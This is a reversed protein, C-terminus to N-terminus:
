LECDQKLEITVIVELNGGVMQGMWQSQNVVVAQPHNVQFRTLKILADFQDMPENLRTLARSLHVSRLYIRLM